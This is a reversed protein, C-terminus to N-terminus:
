RERHLLQFNLSMVGSDTLKCLIPLVPPTDMIMFYSKVPLSLSKAEREITEYKTAFILLKFLFWTYTTRKIKFSKM